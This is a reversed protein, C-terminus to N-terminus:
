ESLSEIKEQIEYIIDEEEPPIDEENIVVHIESLFVIIESISDSEIIDNYIDDVVDILRNNSTNYCLEVIEEFLEKATKLNM